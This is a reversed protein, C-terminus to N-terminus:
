KSGAERPTVLDKAAGVTARAYAARKRVAYGLPPDDHIVAAERWLEAHSAAQAIFRRPDSVDDLAATMVAGGCTRALRVGLAAISANACPVPNAKTTSM